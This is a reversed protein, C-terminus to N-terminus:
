KLCSLPKLGILDDSIRRTVVIHLQTPQSYVRLSMCGSCGCAFVHHIWIVNLSQICPSWGLCDELQEPQNYSQVRIILRM